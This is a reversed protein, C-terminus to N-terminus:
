SAPNGTKKQKSSVRSRILESPGHGKQSVSSKSMEKRQESFQSGAEDDEDAEHIELIESDDHWGLKKSHRDRKADIGAFSNRDAGGPYNLPGDIAVKGEYKAPDQQRVDENM